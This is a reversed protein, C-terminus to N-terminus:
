SHREEIRDTGPARNVLPAEHPAPRYQDSIAVVPAVVLDTHAALFDNVLQRCYAADVAHLGTLRAFVLPGVLQTIAYDADIDGLDTRARPGTLLHDFPQRYRDVVQKHLSHLSTRDSAAPELGVWALATLHLPAHEILSAQRVLLETLQERLSGSDPPLEAQPLLREFAAVLLGTSNGFNRYLTTAAVKSATTVAEVTVAHIGGTALLRTAADLLRERSRVRRPDDQGDPHEGGTRPVPAV